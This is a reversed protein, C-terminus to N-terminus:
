GAENRVAPTRKRGGQLIIFSLIVWIAALCFGGIVDTAFHVNLIIRSLGILLPCLVLLITLAIKTSIHMAGKWLLYILIACFVFSSLSHGSPFSYGSIGKIIPLQPRHRHFFQKLGFMM